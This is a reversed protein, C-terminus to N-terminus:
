IKYKSILEKIEEDNLKFEVDDFEELYDDIEKIMLDGSETKQVNELQKLGQLLMLTEKYINEDTDIYKLAEKYLWFDKLEEKDYVEVEQANYKEYYYDKNFKCGITTDYVMDGSIVWSHNCRAKDYSFRNVNGRVYKCESLGFTLYIAALHCIGNCLAKSTILISLPIHNFNLSRLRYLLNDEYPQVLCENINEKNLEM